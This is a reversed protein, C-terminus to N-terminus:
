RISECYKNRSEMKIYYVKGHEEDAEKEKSVKDAYVKKMQALKKEIENRKLRSDDDDKKIFEKRAKLLDNLRKNKYTANFSKRIEVKKELNDKAAVLEDELHRVAIAAMIMINQKEILEDPMTEVRDHLFDWFKNQIKNGLGILVHLEPFVYRTVPLFMWLPPEKVGISPSLTKIQNDTKGELKLQLITQERSIAAIALDRASWIPFHDATNETVENQLHFKAWNAKSERCYLCWSKEYSERGLMMMDYKLDGNGNLEIDYSYIGAYYDDTISTNFFVKRENTEKHLGITVPINGTVQSVNCRLFGDKLKNALPRLIDLKDESSDIKGVVEDLYYAKDANALEIHMTMLMTFAGKGHDGGIVIRMYAINNYDAFWQSDILLKSLIVDADKYRYEICKTRVKEEFHIFDTCELEKMKVRICDEKSFVKAGVSHRMYKNIVRLQRTKINGEKMMSIVETADM